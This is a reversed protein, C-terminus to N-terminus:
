HFNRFVQVSNRRFFIRLADDTICNTTSVNFEHKAEALAHCVEEFTVKDSDVFTRLEDEIITRMEFSSRKTPRPPPQPIPLSGQPVGQFISPPVAPRMTGNALNKM